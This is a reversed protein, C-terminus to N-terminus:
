LTNKLQGCAGKIDAGKSHRLSAPIRAQEFKQLWEQTTQPAAPRFAFDPSDTNAADQPALANIPLLNVHCLLGACFRVLADFAEPTDTVGKIMLYELTVRRNTRAVYDLLAEKLSSLPESSLNPMLRNRLNQEASHLSVALTFQEREQSLKQIGSIIGCTSITIHRAGVKLGKPHNFIRLAALTNEYNLFPEGQGMAVLNNTRIGFDKQALLVQEVIEGPLLNRTFGEQGTACFACSLACGVQTSFCVTLRAPAAEDAVVGEVSGGAGVGGGVGGGAGSGGGAGGGDGAGSGNAYTPIAVTEVRAGDAFELVYKRSGDHSVQRNIVRANHLPHKEALRERLSLSLNTMEAYDTAGHAYLWQAVQDGRFRPEGLERMLEALGELSYAKIENEMANM